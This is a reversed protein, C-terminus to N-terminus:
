GVDIATVDHATGDMKWHVTVKDGAKLDPAKFGIPLYYWSGDALELSRATTSFFKVTGAMTQDGTAAPAATAAFAAGPAAVLLAIFAPIIFKRM